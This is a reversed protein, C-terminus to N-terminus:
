FKPIILETHGDAFTYYNNKHSLGDEQIFSKFSEWGRKKETYNALVGPIVVAEWVESNNAVVEGNPDTYISNYIVKYM